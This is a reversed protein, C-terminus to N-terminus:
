SAAKAADDDHLLASASTGLADAIRSLTTLRPLYGGREIRAVTSSTVGARVALVERTLDAGERLRRLNEALTV